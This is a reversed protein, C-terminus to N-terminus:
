HPEIKALRALEKWKKIEKPTFDALERARVPQQRLRRSRPKL